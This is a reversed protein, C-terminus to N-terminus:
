GAGTIWSSGGTVHCGAGHIAEVVEIIGPRDIYTLLAANEHFKSSIHKNYCWDKFYYQEDPGGMGDMLARMQAVEDASLVGPFIVYGDTYMARVAADIDVPGDPYPLTKLEGRFMTNGYLKESHHGNQFAAKPKEALAEYM